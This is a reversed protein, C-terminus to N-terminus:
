GNFCKLYRRGRNREPIRCASKKVGDRSIGCVRAGHGHLQKAFNVLLDLQQDFTHLLNGFLQKSVNQEDDSSGLRIGLAQLFDSFQITEILQERYRDHVTRKARVILEFGYDACQTVVNLFLLFAPKLERASVPCGQLLKNRLTHRKVRNCLLLGVLIQCFYDMGNARDAHM